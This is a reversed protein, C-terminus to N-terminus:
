PLGLYIYEPIPIRHTRDHESHVIFRFVDGSSGAMAKAYMRLPLIAYELPDVVEHFEIIIRAKRGSLLLLALFMHVVSSTWWELIIVDSRRIRRAGTGWSFPNYWDLVEAVDITDSFGILQYHCGGAEM